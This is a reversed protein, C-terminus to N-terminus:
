LGLLEDLDEDFQDFLGKEQNQIIGNEDICIKVPRSLFDEDQKFFYVSVDSTSLKKSKLNKRIGNFIHDSHTEVIIQLGRTAMYSLFDLLRSQAGPHLHIEPNEVIFLSDKKCSLASIIVSAVYSVGTGVHHPKIEKSGNGARRYSVRVIETGSIQEATV